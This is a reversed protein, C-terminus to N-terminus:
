ELEFSNFYLAFSNANHIVLEGEEEANVAYEFTYLFMDHVKGGKDENQYETDDTALAKSPKKVTKGDFTVKPFGTGSWDYSSYLKCTLKSIKGTVSISGGERGAGDDVKSFQIVPVEEDDPTIWKPFSASNLQNVMVETFSVTVGDIEDVGSLGAYGSGDTYETLVDTDLTLGPFDDGGKPDDKPDDKPNDKCGCLALGALLPLLFLSKKM